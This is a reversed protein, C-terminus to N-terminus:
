IGKYKKGCFPCYTFIISQKLKKIKFGGKKLPFEAEFEAVTSQISAMGKKSISFGFGDLTTKGDKILPNGKIFKKHLEKEIVERCKCNM